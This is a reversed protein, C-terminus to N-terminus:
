LKYDWMMFSVPSFYYKVGNSVYGVVVLEIKYYYERRTSEYTYLSSKIFEKENALSTYESQYFIVGQRNINCLLSDYKINTDVSFNLIKNIDETDQKIIDFKTESDFRNIFNSIPTTNFKYNLEFTKQVKEGVTSDFMTYTLSKIMHETESFTYNQLYILTEIENNKKGERQVMYREPKYSTDLTFYNLEYVDIAKYGKPTNNFTIMFRVYYNSRSICVESGKEYEDFSIASDSPMYSTGAGLGSGPVGSDFRAYLKSDIYNISIESNQLDSCASFIGICSLFIISSLFCIFIKKM